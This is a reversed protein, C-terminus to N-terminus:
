LQRSDSGHASADGQMGKPATNRSPGARRSRARSGRTRGPAGGAGNRVPPLGEQHFTAKGAAGELNDGRAGSESLRRVPFTRQLRHDPRPVLLEWAALGDPSRPELLIFALRALPQAGPILLSGAPLREKRPVWCGGLRTLHHGQFPRPARQVRAVQFVELHASTTRRLREWRIGHAALLAPLEPPPDPVVWGPPVPTRAEGEFHVYAPLHRWTHVGQDRLTFGRGGPLAVRRVDGVPILAHETLALRGELPLTGSGALSAARRDAARTLEVLRAEHRRALDLAELVLARTVAIRVAFPEYSYAESLLSLRNRLGFYNTGFRPKWDFTRWAMRPDDPRWNGYDYVRFGREKMSRRLRPLFTRRSFDLLGPDTAPALPGSYTLEFGHHSGDTTHCDVLLLPDLLRFLRLLARTEPAEAKMFDRNLDLGGANARRGVGCHPGNQRPRNLPDMADNGDPNYNPLFVVIRGRLLHHHRGERIERLIIQLAEKGEVEGAHINAMVLVKPRPDGAAERLADVPPDAALVFPIPRGEGSHGAVGAHLLPCAGAVADVFATVEASSSTAAYGTREPTVRLETSPPVGSTSCAGAVLLAALAPLLPHTGDPHPKLKMM